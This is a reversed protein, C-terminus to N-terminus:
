PFVPVRLFCLFIISSRCFEYVLTTAASSRPFDQSLENRRGLGARRMLEDHLGSCRITERATKSLPTQDFNSRASWSRVIQMPRWFVARAKDSVRRRPAGDEPDRRSPLFPSRWAEARRGFLQERAKSCHLASPRLPPEHSGACGVRRLSKHKRCCSKQGCRPAQLRHRREPVARAGDLCPGHPADFTRRRPHRHRRSPPRRRCM